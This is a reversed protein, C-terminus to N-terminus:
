CTIKLEECIVDLLKDGAAKWTFQAAHARCKAIRESRANQAENRLTLVADVWEAPDDQAAFIPANGCVEPLAGAAACITPTGLAMAELPPLGFGETTSPFVMADAQELLARLESDSIRGAFIVNSPVEIENFAFASANAPGFLVLRQDHLRPDSYAQMLVRINKHVQTNALGVTYHQGILGLRTLIETNAPQSLIHDVGNHIVSINEAAAIGSQALQDASFQSVTLIRRARRGIRPQVFQYWTRFARSYSEPSLFVQADHIMTIANTSRLPSLNCLSILLDGSDARPLDIQEWAQGKFHGFQEHMLDNRDLRRQTDRPCIVKVDLTQKLSPRHDLQQMMGMILEGAVRQVGTQPASLFRGNFSVTPM